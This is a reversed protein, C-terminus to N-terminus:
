DGETEAAADPEPEPKYGEPPTAPVITVTLGGGGPGTHELQHKESFRHPHLACMLRWLLHNDFMRKVGVKKGGQYVPEDWGNVARDMAVSLLRDGSEDYADAAQQKFEPHKDFHRYVTARGIKATKAAATVNGHQAYAKLFPEHWSTDNPHGGRRARSPTESPEVPESATPSEAV